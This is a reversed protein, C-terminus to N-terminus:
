VHCVFCMLHFGKVQTLTLGCSSELVGSPAAGSVASLKM